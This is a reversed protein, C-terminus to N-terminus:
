LIKITKKRISIFAKEVHLVNFSQKELERVINPTRDRQCYMPARLKNELQDLIELLVPASLFRLRNSKHRSISNNIVDHWIVVNIKDNMEADLLIQVM